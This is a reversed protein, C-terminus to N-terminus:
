MSFAFQAFVEESYESITDLIFFVLKLNVSHAYDLDNEFSKELLYEEVSNEIYNVIEVELNELTDEYIELKPLKRKEEFTYIKAKEQLESEYKLHKLMDDKFTWRKAHPLCFYDSIYHSVIGIKKSLIKNSIPDLFDNFNMYRSLYIIRVIERAIYDISEEKYHRIFKYKPLIDPAVSWWELRKKDLKLDYKDYVEEHINSAIIQHTEAFIKIM